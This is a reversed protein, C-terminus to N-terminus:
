ARRDARQEGRNGAAGRGHGARPRPQRGRRAPREGLRDGGRAAHEAVLLGARAGVADHRVWARHAAPDARGGSQGRHLPPRRQYRRARAGADGATQAALAATGAATKNLLLSGFHDTREAATLEPGAINGDVGVLFLEGVRQALTLNDLVQTVCAGAPSGTTPSGGSLAASPASATGAAGPQAPAAASAPRATDAPVAPASSSAGSSTCGAIFACAVAIASAAASARWRRM